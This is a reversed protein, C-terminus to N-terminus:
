ENTGKKDQEDMYYDSKSMCEPLYQKEDTIERHVQIYDPLDINGM